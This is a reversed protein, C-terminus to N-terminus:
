PRKELFVNEHHMTKALEPDSCYACGPWAQGLFDQHRPCARLVVHSVAALARSCAACRYKGTIPLLEWGRQEPDVVQLGCGGYCTITPEDASLM